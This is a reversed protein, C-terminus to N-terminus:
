RGSEELTLMEITTYGEGAVYRAKCDNKPCYLIVKNLIGQTTQKMEVDHVPCFPKCLNDARESCQHYKDLEAYKVGKHFYVATVPYGHVSVYHNLLEDPSQAPLMSCFRCRDNQNFAIIVEPGSITAIPIPESAEYNKMEVGRQTRGELASEIFPNRFLVTVAIV